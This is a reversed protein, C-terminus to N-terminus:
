RIKTRGPNAASKRRGTHMGAARRLWGQAAAVNILAGYPTVAGADVRELSPQMDWCCWAQVAEVSSM